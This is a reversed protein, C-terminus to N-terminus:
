GLTADLYLMVMFGLLMGFTMLRQHKKERYVEPFVEKVTVYIMAGGALGLGVPLLTYFITFLLAGILASILEAIGSIVGLLIPLLVRRYAAILPLSVALGEPIDQVGIAFATILGKDIDYIISTGVALGEPINHIIIAIIILWIKSLKGRLIESGEYKKSLHEHPAYREILFMLFFGLVIGIATPSFGGLDIGPLILSTFSAVLMIGGAFAMSFDVYKLSVKKLILGIIAGTSTTLTVFLGAILVVLFINDKSLEVLYNFTAELVM